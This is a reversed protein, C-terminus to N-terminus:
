SYMEKNEEGEAHYADAIRRLTNAFVIFGKEDAQEAKQRYSKELAFEAEGTPDLNHMGRSNLAELYYGRCASNTRDKQLCEVVKKDIFFGDEDKPAYFTTMGFYELALKTIGYKDSLDTVDKVWSLLEESRFNGEIDTGPLKKWGYLLKFGQKATRSKEEETGTFDDNKGCIMRIIDIYFKPNNSLEDWIYTPTFGEEERLLVLYQWEIKIMDTRDVKSEQLWKILCQICYEDHFHSKVDDINKTLTDVVLNLDIENKELIQYYLISISTNARGFCNLKNIIEPLAEIDEDKIRWIKVREWYVKKSEDDLSDLFPLIKITWGKKAIILAKENDSSQNLVSVIRDFPMEQVIGEILEDNDLDKSNEIIYRFDTDEIVDSLCAGFLRKNEVESSLGVIEEISSNGYKQRVLEVQKEKLKKEGEFYDEREDILSYQNKIFMRIFYAHSSDPLIFSAFDEIPKIRDEPLGWDTDSYKRHRNIFDYLCNWLDEKDMESLEQVHCKICEIIEQQIDEAVNGIVSILQCMRNVNNGVLDMAINIYGISADVYDKNSVNEPIDKVKFYKPTSTPFGTTTAGPMLRMLAKWALDQNMISLGKFVGVRINISANTQPYWPLVIGILCDLFHERIISLQFLAKMALSFYNEDKALNSIVWSLQYGYETMSIFSEKEKLFQIFANDDENTLKIISELFVKPCAEGILQFNDALTAYIKWDTVKFLQNVFIHVENKIKNRSCNVFRESNNAIIALTEFVGKCLEESIERKNNGLISAQFRNESPLEYRSDIVTSCKNAIEFLRDIDGDFIKDAEGLLIELHNKISWVKNSLVIIEPHECKLGKIRELVFNSELSTLGKIAGFDGQYDENWSGLLALRGLFNYKETSVYPLDFYAVNQIKKSLLRKRGNSYLIANTSGRRTYATGKLEFNLAGSKSSTYKINTGLEYVWEDNKSSIYIYGYLQKDYAVTGTRVDIPRPNIKDLQRQWENDDKWREKDIGIYELNDSIGIIIYKDENMISEANLMAIVDKLFSLLGREDSFDYPKRKYDLGPGESPLLQLIELVKEEVYLM